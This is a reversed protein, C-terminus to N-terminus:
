GLNQGSGQGLNLRGLDLVGTAKRMMIFGRMREESGRDLKVKISKTARLLRNAIGHRGIM